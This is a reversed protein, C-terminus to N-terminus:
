LSAHADTFISFPYMSRQQFASPTCASRDSHQLPVHYSCPQSGRTNITLAVVQTNRRINVETHRLALAQTARICHGAGASSNPRFLNHKSKFKQECM